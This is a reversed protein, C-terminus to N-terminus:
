LGWAVILNPGAFLFFVIIVRHMLILPVRCAQFLEKYTCLFPTAIWLPVLTNLKILLTSPLLSSLPCNTRNGIARPGYTSTTITVKSGYRQLHFCCDRRVNWNAGSSKDWTGDLFVGSTKRRLTMWSCLAIERTLWSTQVARSSVRWLAIFENQDLASRSEVRGPSHDLM